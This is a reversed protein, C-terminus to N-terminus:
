IAIVMQNNLLKGHFSGGMKLNPLGDIFPGDIGHCVTLWLWTPYITRLYGWCCALTGHDDFDFGLPDLKEQHFMNLYDRTNTFFIPFGRFYGSFFLSCSSKNPDPPVQNESFSRNKKNGPQHNPVDKIKGYIPFLWGLHSINKLPISVVLWSIYVPM